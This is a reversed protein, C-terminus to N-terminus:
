FIGKTDLRSVNTVQSRETKEYSAVAEDLAQKTMRADTLYEDIHRKMKQFNSKNQESSKGAWSPATKNDQIRIIAAEINAMSQIVSAMRAAANKLESDEHFIVTAM